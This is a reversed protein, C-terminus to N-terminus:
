KEGKIRQILEIAERIKDEGYEKVLLDYQNNSAKLLEERLYKGIEEPLDVSAKLLYFDREEEKSMKLVKVLSMMDNGTINRSGNELDSVYYKTKGILEGLNEQTYGRTERIKKLFVGVHIRSKKNKKM